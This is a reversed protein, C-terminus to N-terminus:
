QSFSYIYTELAKLQADSMGKTISFNTKMTEYQSPDVLPKSEGKLFAVMDGHQTKYIKAIQQLSPAIIKQDPKHCAFCNGEGEFLEQGTELETKAESEHTITETKQSEKKACGALLLAASLLLFTTRM